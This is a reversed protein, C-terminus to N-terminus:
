VNHSKQEFMAGNICAPSKTEESIHENMKITKKEKRKTGCNIIVHNKTKTLNKYQENKISKM